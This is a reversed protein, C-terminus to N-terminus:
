KTDTNQWKDVTRAGILTLLIPMTINIAAASKFGILYASLLPQGLTEYFVDILCVWALAPRWWAQFKSASKADAENVGIQALALQLEGNEHATTLAAKVAESQTPDKVVRSVINNILDIGATLPDLAM